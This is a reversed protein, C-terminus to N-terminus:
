NFLDTFSRIPGIVGCLVIRNPRDPVIATDVTDGMHVAVARGELSGPGTIRLGPVTATLQGNGNAGIALEPLLDTAPKVSGAPAWPKGISFANPSSCNGREHFAIRYQGPIVNNVVVLVSVRDGRLMFKADGQAASGNKAMLVAEVGPTQAAGKAVPLAAGDGMSSCAAIGLALAALTLAATPRRLRLPDDM